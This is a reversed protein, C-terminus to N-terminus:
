LVTENDLLPVVLVAGGKNVRALREYNRREGNSFQIDLSQIHFLRSKAVTIKNLIIPKETM